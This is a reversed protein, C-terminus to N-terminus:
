IHDLFDRTQSLNAKVRIALLWTALAFNRVFALFWGAVFGVAFAWIGGIIVGALSVTYGRFYISLLGLPNDRGGVLVGALTLGAVVVAAGLGIATGFIRKHLPAFVLVLAEEVARELEPGSVRRDAADGDSFFTPHDSAIPTGSVPM